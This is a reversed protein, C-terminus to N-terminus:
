LSVLPLDCSLNPPCCVEYPLGCVEIPLLHAEFPLYVCVELSLMELPMPHLLVVLSKYSDVEIGILSSEDM